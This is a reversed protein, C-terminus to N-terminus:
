PLILNKLGEHNESEFMNLFDFFSIGKISFSGRNLMRELNINYVFSIDDESITSKYKAYTTDYLEKYLDVIRNVSDTLEKSSVEKRINDLEEFLELYQFYLSVFNSIADLKLADASYLNSRKIRM